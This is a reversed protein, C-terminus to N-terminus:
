FLDIDTAIIDFHFFCFVVNINLDKLFLSCFFLFLYFILIFCLCWRHFRIRTTSRKISAHAEITNPNVCKKLNTLYNNLEIGIAEGKVRPLIDLVYTCAHQEKVLMKIHNTQQHITLFVPINM